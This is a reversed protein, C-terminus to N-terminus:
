RCGKSDSLDVTRPGVYRRLKTELIAPDYPKVIYDDAGMTIARNVDDVGSRATLMLIPISAFEQSGRLRACVSLGDMGPMAIDLIILDPHQTKLIELAEEGSKGTLVKYGLHQLRFAILDLLKQEDDVVLITPNKM